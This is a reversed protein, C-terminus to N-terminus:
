YNKWTINRKTWDILARTDAFRDNSQAVVSILKHGNINILAVFCGGAEPTWGTKLGEVEPVVGILEDTSTLKHQIKNDIDSVTIEKNKVVSTIIPNKIAIRALEAMDKPTTYHNENHLGDFNTFNTNNINYKKAVQNMEKIFGEAGNVNHKALNYAADNASYVLLATVLSKVTIKEGVQLGMVQGETYPEMITITEDLPYVNLATLATVLKTTSAPFIRGDPNKAILTQNTEADILIYNNSLLAPYDATKIVPSQPHQFQVLSLNQFLYNNKPYIDWFSFTPLWFLNLFAIFFIILLNFFNNKLFKLM